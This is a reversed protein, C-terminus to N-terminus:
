PLRHRGQRQNRDAHAIERARHHLRCAAAAHRPRGRLPAAADAAIGDRQAALPPASVYGPGGARKMNHHHARAPRGQGRDAGASEGPQPFFIREDRAFEDPNITAGSEARLKANLWADKANRYNEYENSQLYTGIGWPVTGASARRRRAKAKWLGEIGAPCDGYRHCDFLKTAQGETMKGTQMDATTKAVDNAWAERGKKSLGPPPTVVEGNPLTIGRPAPAAAPQLRHRGTGDGGYRRQGAGRPVGMAGPQLPKMEQTRKNAWMPIKNDPDNPDPVQVIEWAPDTKPQYYSKCSNSIKRRAPCGAGTCGGNCAKRRDENDLRLHGSSIPNHRRAIGQTSRWAVARSGRCAAPAGGGSARHPRRTARWEPLGGLGPGMSQGRLPNSPSLMGLGLGILSNSRSTLADGFGAPEGAPMPPQFMDLLSRCPDSRHVNASCCGSCAAASRVSAPVWRGASRAALAPVRRRAASCDRCPRPSISRRPRRASWAHRGPRWCRRRHCQLAGAAGVAAGAARQVTKIQDDLAEQGREQYFQGFGALKQAPAYRAEDLTPMLQSWQGARQLGGEAIGQMQQQRRAYDQALVPDAAEAM